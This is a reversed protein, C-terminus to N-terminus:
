KIIRDFLNILYILCHSLFQKQFTKNFFNIFRYKLFIFFYLLTSILMDCIVRNLTNAFLSKYIFIILRFILCSYLFLMNLLFVHM